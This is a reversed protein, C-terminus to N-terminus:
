RRYLRVGGHLRCQARQVGFAAADDREGRRQLGIEAGGKSGGGFQDAVGLAPQDDGPEAFGAMDAALDRRRKSGGAGRRKEDVGGLGAM